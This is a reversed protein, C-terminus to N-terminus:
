TSFFGYAWARWVRTTHVTFAWIWHRLWPTKLWGQGFHIPWVFRGSGMLKKRLPPPPGTIFNLNTNTSATSIQIAVLNAIALKWVGCGHSFVANWIWNKYFFEQPPPATAGRGLGLGRECMSLVFGGLKKLRNAVAWIWKGGFNWKGGGHLPPYFLCQDVCVTWWQSVKITFWKHLWPLQSMASSWVSLWARIFGWIVITM